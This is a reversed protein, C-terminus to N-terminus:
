ELAHEQAPTVHAVVVMLVGVKVTVFVIVLGGELEGGWASYELMELSEAVRIMWWVALEAVVREWVDVWIVNTVAVVMRLSVRVFRKVEVEVTEITVGVGPGRVHEPVGPDYQM